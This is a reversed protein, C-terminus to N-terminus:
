FFNVVEKEKVRILIRRYQNLLEDLEQSQKITVESSMGYHIAAEIMDRRKTEIYLKLSQHSYM